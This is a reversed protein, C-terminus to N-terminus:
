ETVSTLSRVQYIRRMGYAAGMALLIYLGSGIPVGTPGGVPTNGGSTPANGNNPHPPVQALIILPATVLLAVFLIIKMHKKMYM